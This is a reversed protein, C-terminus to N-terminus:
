VDGCRVGGLGLFLQNYHTSPTTVLKVGFCRCFMKKVKQNSFLKM